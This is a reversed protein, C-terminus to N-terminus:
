AVLKPLVKCFFLQSNLYIFFNNIAKNAKSTPTLKDLTKTKVYFNFLKLFLFGITRPEFNLKHSNNIIEQKDTMTFKNADRFKM